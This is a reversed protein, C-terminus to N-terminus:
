VDYKITKFNLYIEKPLFGFAEKIPTHMGVTLVFGENIIKYGGGLYKLKLTEGPIEELHYEISVKTKNKALTNLLRNHGIGCKSGGLYFWSTDKHIRTFKLVQM